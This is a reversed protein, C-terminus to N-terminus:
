VAAWLAVGPRGAWSESAEGQLPERHQPGAARRRSRPVSPPRPSPGWRAAPSAPGPRGDEGHGPASRLPLVLGPLLRGRPGM